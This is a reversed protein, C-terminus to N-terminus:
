SPPRPGCGYHAPCEHAGDNHMWYRYYMSRPWDGPSEGRLLPAFSRGQVDDPVDVGALELFTPAFDVNVVIDDNVSGAMVMEPYRILFPM